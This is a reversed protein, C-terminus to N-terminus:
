VKESPANCCIAWSIGAILASSLSDSLSYFYEYKLIIHFYHSRMKNGRILYKFIDALYFFCTSPHFTCFVPGGKEWYTANIWYRNQFTDATKNTFHDIPM